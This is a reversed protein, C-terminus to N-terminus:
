AMKTIMDIVRIKNRKVDIKTGTVSHKIISRHRTELHLNSVLGSFLYILFVVSTGLLFEINNGKCKNESEDSEDACHIEGDCLQEIRVQGFEGNENKTQCAAFATDLKTEIKDCMKQSHAFKYLIQVTYKTDLTFQKLVVDIFAPNSTKLPTLSANILEVDNDNSLFVEVSHLASSLNGEQGDKIVFPISAISIRIEQEKIYDSQLPNYDFTAPCDINASFFM